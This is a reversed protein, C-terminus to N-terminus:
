RRFLNDIQENYYESQEDMDNILAYMRRNAKMRANQLELRRANWSTKSVLM